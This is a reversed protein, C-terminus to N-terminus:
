KVTKGNWLTANPNLHSVGNKSHIYVVSWVIYKPEFDTTTDM